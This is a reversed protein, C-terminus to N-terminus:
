HPPFSLPRCTATAEAVAQRKREFLEREKRLREKKKAKHEEQLTEGTEIARMREEEKSRMVTMLM